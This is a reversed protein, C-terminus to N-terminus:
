FKSEDIDLQLSKLLLKNTKEVSFYSIIELYKGRIADGEVSNDRKFYLAEYARIIIDDSLTIKDGDIATIEAVEEGEIYVKEGVELEEHNIVQLENGTFPEEDIFLLVPDGDSTDKPIYSEYLHEKKVFFKDNIESSLDNTSFDLYKPVMNSELIINNYVKNVEPYENNVIHVYSPFNQGLMLNQNNPDGAHIRIMSDKSLFLNAGSRAMWDPSMDYFSTWGDIKEMFNVCDNRLGVIYSGNKPDYGGCIVGMNTLYDHFFNQMGYSSIAFLGNLTNRFVQGAYETGDREDVFMGSEAPKVVPMTEEDDQCATAALFLGLLAFLYIKRKMAIKKQFVLKMKRNM